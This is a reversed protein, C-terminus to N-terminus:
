KQVSQRQLGPVARPLPPVFQQCQAFAYYERSRSDEGTGLEHFANKLERPNLSQCVCVEESIDTVMSASSEEPHCFAFAGSTATSSGALSACIAASFAQGRRLRALIGGPFYVTMM